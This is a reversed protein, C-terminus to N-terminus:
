PDWRLTNLQAERVQQVSGDALAVVFMRAHRPKGIMLESGGDANWGGDSEFIMVTQPNVKAQDMGDLKANFAYDSRSASNAAPCKFVKQSHGVENQIADCWTAAPPFKDKNDGSYIRIALALQKENNVCNIAEAKQKAAGLAPLLMAAFVPILLLTIGNVIIGALALGKGRLQGRSKGIKNLAIAGLILGIPASLLLTIGCTIIGLIGMVLSTIAMGSTKANATHATAPLPPPSPPTFSQLAAAFEPMDSLSKWETAGEVRVRTQANVRGDAIWQRLQGETVSGYQKQDNGIITYTAM